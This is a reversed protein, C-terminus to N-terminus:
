RSSVATLSADAKLRRIWINLNALRPPLQSVVAEAADRSPHLSHILVYWPRGQYSEQRYYYVSPLLSKSNAAFEELAALKHFGILQVSYPTDGATITQTPPESAAPLLTATPVVTSESLLEAAPASTSEPISEAAPTPAAAIEPNEPTLTPAPEPEAIQPANTVPVAAIEPSLAAEATPEPVESAVLEPASTPEPELARELPALDLPTEPVAAFGVVDATLRPQPEPQLELNLDLRPSSTQAQENLREISKSIGALAASLRDLQARTQPDPEERPAPDIQEVTRQLDHMQTELVAQTTNLRLLFFVLTGVVLLSFVLMLIAMLTSQHKLRANLEDRHTQFSRQLRQATQRRDDDVDGIRAILAAELKQTDQRHQNLSAAIRAIQTTQAKLYRQLAEGANSSRSAHAAPTADATPPPNPAASTTNDM